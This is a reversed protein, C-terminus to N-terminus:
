NAECSCSAIVSWNVRVPNNQPTFSAGCLNLGADRLADVSLTEPLNKVRDAFGGLAVCSTAVSHNHGVPVGSPVLIQTDNVLWTGGYVGKGSRLKARLAEQYGADAAGAGEPLLSLDQGEGEAEDLAASESANQWVNVAYSYECPPELGLYHRAWLARYEQHEAM